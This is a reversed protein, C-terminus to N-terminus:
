NKDKLAETLLMRVTTSVNGGQGVSLEELKDLTKYDLRFSLKAEKKTNNRPYIKARM